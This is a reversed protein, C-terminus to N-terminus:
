RFPFFVPVVLMTLAFVLLQLPVGARLYDTFRYQGLPLVLTNTPSAMPTSFATSAGFAVAMLFARPEVGLELAAKLAVPALLVSTATNSMLLSLMSTALFLAALTWYPGLEGLNDVLVRAAIDLGGTKELATAMPLMAAILILSEWSVARYASPLEVGRTLVMAGGAVLVAVVPPVVGSVLLAVMGAVVGVALPARRETATPGPPDAEGVLVFQRYQSRLAVLRAPTGRVLLTDGFRLRIDALPHDLPKGKRRIGVVQLGFRDRFRSEKLTQNLLQSRPTLIIEAARRAHEPLLDRLREPPVYEIEL